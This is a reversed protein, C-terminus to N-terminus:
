VTSKTSLSVIGRYSHHFHTKHDSACANFVLCVCLKSADWSAVAGLNGSPSWQCGLPHCLKTGDM